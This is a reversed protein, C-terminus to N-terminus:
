WVGPNAERMPCWEARGEEAIKADTGEPALYCFGFVGAFCAKCSDPLKMGIILVNDWPAADFDEGM